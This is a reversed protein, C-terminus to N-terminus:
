TGVESGPSEVSRVHPRQILVETVLLPISWCAWAALKLEEPTQMARPSHVGFAHLVDVFVRFFVFASAVVYSRIMWEQHQRIRRHRIALYGMGTTLIWALALGLLGGAFVWDGPLEKAILYSAGAIGIAAAGLYVRGLFRHLRLHRRTLWALTADPGCAAGYGWWGPTGLACLAM